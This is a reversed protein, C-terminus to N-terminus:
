TKTWILSGLLAIDRVGRPPDIDLESTLFSLPSTRTLERKYLVFRPDSLPKLAYPELDEETLYKSLKYSVLTWNHKLPIGTAYSDLRGYKDGLNTFWDIAFSFPVLDWLRSLTPLLGVADAKVFTSLAYDYPVEFSSKTSVEVLVGDLDGGGVRFTHSGYITKVGSYSTWEKELIGAAIVVNDVDDIAPLVAFKRAIYLQALFKTMRHMREPPPFNGTLIGKLTFLADPVLALLAGLGQLTELYNSSVQSTWTDLGNAVSAWLAPRLKYLNYRCAWEFSSYAASYRSFFGKVVASSSMTDIGLPIDRTDNVNTYSYSRNHVSPEGWTLYGVGVSHHILRDYRGVMSEPRNLSPNRQSPTQPGYSLTVTCTIYDLTSYGYTLYWDWGYRIHRQIKYKVKLPRGLPDLEYTLSDQMVETYHYDGDYYQMTVLPGTSLREKLAELLSRAKYLREAPFSSELSFTGVDEDLVLRLTSDTDVFEVVGIGFDDGEGIPYSPWNFAVSGLSHFHTVERERPITLSDNPVIALNFPGDRLIRGLTGSTNHYRQIDNWVSYRPNDITGKISPRELINGDVLLGQLPVRPRFHGTLGIWHPIPDALPFSDYAYDEIQTWSDFHPCFIFFDALQDGDSVIPECYISGM